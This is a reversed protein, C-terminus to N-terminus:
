RTNQKRRVLWIHRHPFLRDNSRSDPIAVISGFVFGIGLVGGLFAWPSAPQLGRLGAGTGGFAGTAMIGLLVSSGTLFSVAAAFVQSELALRLRANTPGQISLFFGALLM